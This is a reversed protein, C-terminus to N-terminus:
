HVLFPNRAYETAAVQFGGNETKAAELFLHDLEGFRLKSTAAVFGLYFNDANKFIGEMEENNLGSAALLADWRDERSRPYPTELPLTAEKLLAALEPMGMASYGEIAEPVLVGTENWLLQLVGGNHIESLAMHACFLLVSSRPVSKCSLLFSQGDNGTDIQQFLPEVVEWYSEM